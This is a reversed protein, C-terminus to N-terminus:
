TAPGAAPPERVAVPGARLNDRRRQLILITTAVVLLALVGAGLVWKLPKSM